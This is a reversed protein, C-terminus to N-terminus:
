AEYESIYFGNADKGLIKVPQFSAKCPVTIVEYGKRPLAEINREFAIELAEVKGIYTKDM